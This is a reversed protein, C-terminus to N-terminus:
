IKILWILESPIENYFHMDYGIFHTVFIDVKWPFNIFKFDNANHNLVKINNPDMVFFTLIKRSIAKNRDNRDTITNNTSSIVARHQM